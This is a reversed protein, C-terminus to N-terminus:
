GSSSLSDDESESDSDEESESESEVAKKKSKEKKKKKSPEEYKSAVSLVMNKEDQLEKNRGPDEREVMAAFRQADKAAAEVEEKSAVPLKQAAAKLEEIIKRVDGTSTIGLAPLAWQQLKKIWFGSVSSKGDAGIVRVNRHKLYAKVQFAKTKSNWFPCGGGEKPDHFLRCTACPPARGRGAGTATTNMTITSVDTTVSNAGRAKKKGSEGGVKTWGSGQNGSSAAMMASMMEMSKFELTLNNQHAQNKLNGLLLGYTAETAGSAGGRKVEELEAQSLGHSAPFVAAPHSKLQNLAKNIHIMMLPGTPKQGELWETLLKWVYLPSDVLNSSRERMWTNMHKFLSDVKYFEGNLANASAQDLEYPVMEEM